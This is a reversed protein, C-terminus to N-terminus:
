EPPRESVELYGDAGFTWYSTVLADLFAADHSVLLLAGAFDALAAELCQMSVLDLHNTPEDMVILAPARELGLALMLKRTEGPSPLETRLLHEPDSALRSVTSIVRGLRDHGLSRVRRVLRRAAEADIEQPIVLTEPSERVLDGVLTSKGAGNPGRLGIRDDPRVVLQPHRVRRGDPLALEGEGRIILADRASRSGRVSIGVRRNVPRDSADLRAAARAVRGDLQRLLRGAQGDAGSVRARDIKERADSDNRALGRKSRKRNQVAAEARRRAAEAQVKEVDARAQNYRRRRELHEREAQELGATVGGPRMVTSGDAELFLCRDCLADLLRRDHSVILGVGDFRSLAQRVQERASADLHNTPEDVALLEPRLWLAVAIQARKREGHSLTEWRWPWDGELALMSALRGADADPYGLIEVLGDPPRDTRQECIHRPEPAEVSGMQPELRGIALELLTSKGVGNPGVIGTWGGAASWSLRHFLPEALSSYGFTLSVFRIQTM